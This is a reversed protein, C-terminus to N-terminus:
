SVGKLKRAEKPFTTESGLWINFFLTSFKTDSIKNLQQGKKNFFITDAKGDYYGQIVDGNKVSPFTNHLFTTWNKIEDSSLNNNQKKMLDVTTSILETNSIDRLYALQLLFPKRLSFKKETSYLRANYLDWFYYEYKSTGTLYMKPLSPIIRVSEESKAHVNCLNISFILIFLVLKRLM